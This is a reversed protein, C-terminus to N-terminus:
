KSINLCVYNGKTTIKIDNYSKRLHYNLELIENAQIGISTHVQIEINDDTITIRDVHKFCKKIVDKVDEKLWEMKTYCLEIEEELKIKQEKKDKIEKKIEDINKFITKIQNEMKDGNQKDEELKELLCLERDEETNSCDCDYLMDCETCYKLTVGDITIDKM